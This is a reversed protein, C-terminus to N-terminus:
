WGLLRKDVPTFEFEHKTWETSALAEGGEERFVDRRCTIKTLDTASGSTNPNINITWYELRYQACPLKVEQKYSFTGGWGARMYLYGTGADFDESREPVIIYGSGDDAVPIAENEM